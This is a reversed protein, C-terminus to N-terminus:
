DAEPRARLEYPATAAMWRLSLPTGIFFKNRTSVRLRHTDDHGDDCSYVGRDPLWRLKPKTKAPLFRWQQPARSSETCARQYMMLGELVRQVSGAGSGHGAVRLGSGGAADAITRVAAANVDDQAEDEFEILGLAELAAISAGAYRHSSDLDEGRKRLLTSVRALAEERTM